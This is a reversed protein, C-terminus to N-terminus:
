DVVGSLIEIPAETRIQGQAMGKRGISEMNSNPKFFLITHATVTPNGANQVPQIKSVTHFNAPNFARELRQIVEPTGM